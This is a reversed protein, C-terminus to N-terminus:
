ECLSVSDSVHHIYQIVNDGTSPSWWNNQQLFWHYSRKCHVLIRSTLMAERIIAVEEIVMQGMQELVAEGFQRM